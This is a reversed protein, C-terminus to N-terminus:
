KSLINVESIDDVGDFQALPLEIATGIAIQEFTLNKGSKVHKIGFIKSELFLTFEGIHLYVLIQKGSVM